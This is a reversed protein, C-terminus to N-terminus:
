RNLVGLAEILSRWCGRVSPGQIRSKTDNDNPSTPKPGLTMPRPNRCSKSREFRLLRPSLPTGHLKPPFHMNVLHNGDRDMEYPTGLITCCCCSSGVLLQGFSHWSRWGEAKNQEKPLSIQVSKCGHYSKSPLLNYQIKQRWIRTIGQKECPILAGSQWNQNAYAM